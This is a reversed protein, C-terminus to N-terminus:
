RAKLDISQEFRRGANDLSVLKLQSGPRGADVEFEIEPRRALYPGLHATFVTAGDREVFASQVFVAPQAKGRDTLRGPPRTDIPFVVKLSVRAGVRQQTVVAATAQSNM